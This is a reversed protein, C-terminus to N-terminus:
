RFQFDLLVINTLQDNNLDFGTCLLIKQSLSKSYIWMGEISQLYHLVRVETGRKGLHFNAKGTQELLLYLAKLDLIITSIIKLFLDFILTCAPM